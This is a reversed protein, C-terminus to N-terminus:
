SAPITLFIGAPIRQPAPAEGTEAKRLPRTAVSRYACLVLPISWDGQRTARGAGRQASTSIDAIAALRYQIPESWLPSM